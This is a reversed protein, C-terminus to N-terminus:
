AQLLPLETYAGQGTAYSVMTDSLQLPLYALLLPRGQGHGGHNRRLLDLLENHEKFAIRLTHIELAAIM